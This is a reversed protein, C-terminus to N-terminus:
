RAVAARASFRGLRAVCSPRWWGITAAEVTSGDNRCRRRPVGSRSAAVSKKKQAQKQRPRKEPSRMRGNYFVASSVLIRKGDKFAFRIPRISIRGSAQEHRRWLM